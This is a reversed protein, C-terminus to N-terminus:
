QRCRGACYVLPGYSVAVKGSDASVKPNAYNFEPKMELVLSIEDKETFSGTIYAYGNKNKFNIEKGNHLIKAEGSWSPVRIALTMDMFEDDPKFKYKVVNDYPYSTEVEVNGKLEAQLNLTGGIYLHSYVTKDEM